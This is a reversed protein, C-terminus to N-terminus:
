EDNETKLGLAKVIDYIKKTYEGRNQLAYLERATEPSVDFQEKLKTIIIEELPTYESGAGFDIAEQYNADYRGLACVYSDLAKTYEGVAFLSDGAVYENQVKALILVRQYLAADEEKLKMGELVQYAKVYDAEDYSVTAATIDNSYTVLNACLMVFLIISAGMIFILIVPGKPLPPSLDVEKPKKPKKPKKEKKKKEKKPKKEKKKKEKKKGKKDEEEGEPAGGGAGSGSSEKSGLEQLIQLNEDSINSLQQDEPVVEESASLSDIDVPVSNEKKQNSIEEEDDEGFLIRSLKQMFTEGERKEKKKKKKKKKGSGEEEEEDADALSIDSAGPEELSENNEDAKLLDGIGSLEEDNQSVEEILDMLEKQEDPVSSGDERQGEGQNTWSDDDMTNVEFGEEGGKAGEKVEEKQADDNTKQANQVIGTLNDFFEEETQGSGESEERDIEREFDQVFEDMDMHELEKEFDAMYDSSKKEQVQRKHEPSISGLLSDLYDETKSKESM